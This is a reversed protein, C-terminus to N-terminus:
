LLTGFVVAFFDDLPAASKAAKARIIAGEWADLVFRGLRDADRDAPVEGARQAERIAETIRGSWGRLGAEVQERILPSHDAREAGMNGILCGRTFEAAVLGDRLVGFRARLHEIPGRGHPVAGWASKAAYRAVVEAGLDEKSKFHNYFSGKPVGAARTITDVSCAAFGHRHFQAVATEVIVERVSPRPM